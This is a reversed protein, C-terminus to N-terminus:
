VGALSMAISQNPQAEELLKKDQEIFGIEAKMNGPAIIVKM